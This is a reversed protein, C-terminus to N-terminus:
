GVAGGYAKCYNYYNYIKIIVSLLFKLTVSVSVILIEIRVSVCDVCM